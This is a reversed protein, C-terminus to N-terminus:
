SMQDLARPFLFGSCKIRLHHTCDDKGLPQVLQTVSLHLALLVRSLDSVGTGSFGTSYSIREVTLELM